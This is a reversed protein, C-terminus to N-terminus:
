LRPSDDARGVRRRDEGRGLGHNNAQGFVWLGAAVPLCRSLRGGGTVKHFEVVSGPWGHTILLPVAQAHPSPCHIFHVDCGDMETIAQPFRNFYTERARWDYENLWYDRLDRAYSLPLGQSWDDPTEADPWRTRELRSRLDALEEEPIEIRFDRVESM